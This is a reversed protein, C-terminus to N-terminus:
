ELFQCSSGIAPNWSYFEDLTIGYKGVAIECLGNTEVEHFQDCDSVIGTQMPSPTSVATASGTSTTTGAASIGM